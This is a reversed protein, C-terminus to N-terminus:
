NNHQIASPGQQKMEKDHKRGAIQLQNKLKQKPLGASFLAVGESIIRSAKQQHRAGGRMLPALVLRPMVM